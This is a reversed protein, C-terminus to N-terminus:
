EVLITDAIVSCVGFYGLAGESMNTPLNAPSVDFFGGRWDTESLMTRYFAAQNGSLSYKKQIIKTGKPFYVHKYEPAFVEAIDVTHITYFYLLAENDTSETYGPVNQWNINIEWMADEKSSFNGFILYLSDYNVSQYYTLPTFATVPEASASSSYEKGLHKILLNYEKRIAIAFSDSQYKGPSVETFSFVSDDSFVTVEAGSVMEPKAIISNVPKSIYIIHNKYENTLIGEVILYNNIGPNIDMDVKEECSILFM